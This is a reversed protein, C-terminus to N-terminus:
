EVVPRFRPGIPPLKKTPSPFPVEAGRRFVMPKCGEPLVGPGMVSSNRFRQVNADLGSVKAPQVFAESGLLEKVQQELQAVASKDCVNVFAYGLNRRSEFEIPVYLFDMVPRFQALRALVQRPELERDIGRLLVTAEADKAQPV